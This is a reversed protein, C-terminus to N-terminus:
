RRKKKIFRAKGSSLIIYPQGKKTYHVGRRSSSRKKGKKRRQYAVEWKQKSRRRQDQRWGRSTHKIKGRKSRTSRKRSNRNKSKRKRSAKRRSKVIAVTSIINATILKM